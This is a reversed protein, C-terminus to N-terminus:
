DTLLPALKTVPCKYTGKATMMTSVRVLGDKGHYVESVITLPWKTPFLNDEKLVVVDGVTFNRIPNQWKCFKNLM